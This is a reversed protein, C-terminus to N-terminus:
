LSFRIAVHQAPSAELALRVALARLESANTADAHVVSGFAERERLVLKLPPRAGRRLWGEIPTRHTAIVSTVARELAEVGHFAFSPANGRQREILAAEGADVAVRAAADDARLQPTGLLVARVQWAGSVAPASAREDVAHRETASMPARAPAAGRGTGLRNRPGSVPRPFLDLVGRIRPTPRGLSFTEGVLMAAFSAPSVVVRVDSATGSAADAVMAVPPAPPRHRPFLYHIDAM